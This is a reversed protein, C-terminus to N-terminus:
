LLNEKQGGDISSLLLCRKSGKAKGPNSNRNGISRARDEWRMRPTAGKKKEGGDPAGREGLGGRVAM